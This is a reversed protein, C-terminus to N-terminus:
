KKNRQYHHVFIEGPLGQALFTADLFQTTVGAGRSVICGGIVTVTSMVTEKVNNYLFLLPLLDM